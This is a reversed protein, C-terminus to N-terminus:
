FGDFIIKLHPGAAYEEYDEDWCQVLREGPVLLTPREWNHTMYAEWINYMAWEDVADLRKDVHIPSPNPGQSIWIKELCIQTTLYAAEANLDRKKVPRPEAYRHLWDYKARMNNRTQIEKKYRRNYARKEKLIRRRDAPTQQGQPVRSPTHPNQSATNNFDPISSLPSPRPPRYFPKQPARRKQRLYSEFNQERARRQFKKINRLATRKTTTGTQPIDIFGIVDM